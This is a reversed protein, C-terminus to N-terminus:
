NSLINSLIQLEVYMLTSLIMYATSLIEVFRRALAGDGCIMKGERYEERDGMMNFCKVISAISMVLPEFKFYENVHVM